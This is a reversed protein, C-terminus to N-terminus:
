RQQLGPLRRGPDLNQSGASCLWSSNAFPWIKWCLTVDPTLCRRFLGLLLCLMAFNIAFRRLHEAKHFSNYDHCILIQRAISGLRLSHM